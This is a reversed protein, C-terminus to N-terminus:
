PDLQLWLRQGVGCGCGCGRWIRATDAVSVVAWPLAPDNVWPALGPILGVVVHNRPPNTLWQAM